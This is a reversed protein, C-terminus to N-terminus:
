IQSFTSFDYLKLGSAPLLTIVSRRWYVIDSNFWVSWVCKSMATAVNYFHYTNKHFFDIALIALNAYSDHSASSCRCLQWLKRASQSLNSMYSECIPLRNKINCIIHCIIDIRVYIHYLGRTNKGYFHTHRKNCRLLNWRPNLIVNKRNTPPHWTILIAIV